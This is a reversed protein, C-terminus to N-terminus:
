GEHLMGVSVISVQRFFDCPGVIVAFVM